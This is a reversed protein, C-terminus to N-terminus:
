FVCSRIGVYCQAIILGDVIDINGDKNVDANAANFNGPNLGVYYQAILLSDVINVSNDGNVDGLMGPIATPATTPVATPATTNASNGSVSASFSNIAMGNGGSWIEFGVEIDMLYYSNSLYGRSIADQFFPSLDISASNTKSQRRYSITKWDQTGGWVEYTAGGISVTGISSGFPQISGSYNLWIMLETGGMPRGQESGNTTFWIDYSLDYISSSGSASVSTSAATINSVIIPMNSNETAIGQNPSEGGFPHVGKYLSPYTAPSGNSLNFNATTVSFQANPGATACQRDSSNWENQQYIYTNNVLQVIDWQGCVSTQAFASEISVLVSSLLIASCILLCKKMKREKKM